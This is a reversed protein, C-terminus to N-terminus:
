HKYEHKLGWYKYKYKCSENNSWFMHFCVPKKM